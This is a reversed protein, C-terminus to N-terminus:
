RRAEDDGICVADVDIGNAALERELAACRAELKRSYASAIMARETSRALEERYMALVDGTVDISGDAAADADVDLGDTPTPDPESM